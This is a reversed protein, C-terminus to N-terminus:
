LHQMTFDKKNRCTSFQHDGALRDTHWDCLMEASLCHTWKSWVSNFVRRCVSLCISKSHSIVMTWFPWKRNSRNWMLLLWTPFSMSSNATFCCVPFVTSHITLTTPSSLTLIFDLWDLFLCTLTFIEIMQLCPMKEIAPCIVGQACDRWSCQM